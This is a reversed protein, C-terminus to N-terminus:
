PPCPFAQAAWFGDLCVAGVGCCYPACVEGARCPSGLPPCEREREHCVWHPPGPPQVAGSCSRPSGCFCTGEPYECVPSTRSGGCAPGPDGYRAPCSPHPAGEGASTEGTSAEDASAGVGASSAVPAEAAAPESASPQAGGCGLLTGLVLARLLAPPRIM